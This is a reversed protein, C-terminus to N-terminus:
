WYRVNVTQVDPTIVGTDVWRQKFVQANHQFYPSGGTTGVQHILTCRPEYWLTLGQLAVRVCLDVDEFYGRLYVPDFGSLRDFVSHRIALAAGTTWQVPQGVNTEDACPNSYGLCRHFPQCRADFLGGANQLAGNPFLLRAGVLGVREDAFAALLADNWGKSWEAVAYVDQNVFFLIDGHARRAGANCNGAFGLNDPNRQVSAVCAPITRTMDVAPSCDDQVIWEINDPTSAFARLSNLAALVGALDNYAPIIVTLHPANM